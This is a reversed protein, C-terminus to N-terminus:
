PGRNSRIAMATHGLEATLLVLLDDLTVIGAARGDADVIPLRRVGLQRMKFSAEEILATSAIRGDAPSMVQEVRTGKPDLGPAVVRCAIDRDTLIGTPHGKADVVVVSGVHKELMESAATIVMQTPTVTVPPRRCFRELSM